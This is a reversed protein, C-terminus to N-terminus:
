RTEMPLVGDHFRLGFLREELCEVCMGISKKTMREVADGVALLRIVQGLVGVELCPVVYGLAALHPLVLTKEVADQM